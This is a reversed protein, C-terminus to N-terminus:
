AITNSMTKIYIVQFINQFKKHAKFSMGVKVTQDDLVSAKGTQEYEELMNFIILEHATGDWQVM